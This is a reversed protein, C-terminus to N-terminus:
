CAQLRYLPSAHTLCHIPPHTPPHTPLNKGYTMITLDADRLAELDNRSRVM